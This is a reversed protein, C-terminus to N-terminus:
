CRLSRAHPYQDDLVVRQEAVRMWAPSRASPCEDGVPHAVARRGVQREVVARWAATTSSRPRGRREPSSTSRAAARGRSRTGTRMRVARSVTSSRM